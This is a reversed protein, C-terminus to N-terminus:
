EVDLAESALVIEEIMLETEEAVLPSVQWRIPFARRLLWSMVVESGDESMLEIKVDAFAEPDADKTAKVWQWLDLRGTLGRSLTVDHVQCLGPLRRVSTRPETGERYEVAEIDVGLGTVQQFGAHIEIGSGTQISVRFRFGRYPDDRQIAM